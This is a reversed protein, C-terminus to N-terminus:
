RLTTLMTLLQVMELPLQARTDDGLSNRGVAIADDGWSEAGRGIAIGDLVNNATLALRGIAISDDGRIRSDVGICIGNIGDGQSFAGIAISGLEGAAAQHGIAIADEVAYNGDGIALAFPGDVVCNGIGIDGELSTQCHDGIAIGSDGDAWCTDGIVVTGHGLTFINTGIAVADQGEQTVDYGILVSRTATFEAHCLGGLLTANDAGAWSDWGGSLGSTTIGASTDTMTVNGAAGPVTNEVTRWWTNGSILGTDTVTLVSSALAAFFNVATASNDVGILVPTNGGSVGGGDDFEFVVTNVGDGITITDTDVPNAFIRINGTAKLSRVSQLDVAELGLDAETIISPLNDSYMALSTAGIQILGGVGSIQTQLDDIVGAMDTQGQADIASKLDTEVAVIESALQNYDDADAQEPNGPDPPRGPPNSQENGDFVETPYDATPLAM